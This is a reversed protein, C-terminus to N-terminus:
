KERSNRWRMIRGYASNPSKARDKLRTFDREIRDVINKQVVPFHEEIYHTGLITLSALIVGVGSLIYFVTFIKSIDKHPVLDGYGVTTLTATSFYLADIFSWNEFKQYFVTGIGILGIIIVFLSYIKKHYQDM